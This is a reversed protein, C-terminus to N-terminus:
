SKLAEVVHYICFMGQTTDIEDGFNRSLADVFAQSYGARLLMPKVSDAFRRLIAQFASGLGKMTPDHHWRGIPIYIIQSEINNFAGTNQLHTYIRNVSPQIGRALLVENVVQFFRTSAPAHTRPDLAQYPYPHFFVGSEPEGSYYLGGPRL